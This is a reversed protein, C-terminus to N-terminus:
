GRGGGGGAGESQNWGVWEDMFCVIGSPLALVIRLHPIQNTEKVEKKLNQKYWNKELEREMEMNKKRKKEIENRQSVLVM